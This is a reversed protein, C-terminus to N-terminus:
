EVMSRFIMSWYASILEYWSWFNYNNKGVSGDPLPYEIQTDFGIGYGSYSYKDPDSNKSLKAGELLCDRLTFDTNLDWSWSDLEYVIFFHVENKQPFAAKDEQKLCSVEFKLKM